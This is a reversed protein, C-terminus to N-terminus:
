FTSVGGVAGMAKGCTHLRITFEKELGLHSIYGAGNPEVLGNSHAEDVILVFNGSSFASKAEKVIEKAPAMDGDMSYVSEIAIFVTSQGTRIAPSSDKVHELVRRLALPDNHAFPKIFSARSGKMGDHISAQILEDHIIADGSQPITSFIAVNAEFGSNFFCGM